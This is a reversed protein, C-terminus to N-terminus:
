PTHTCRKRLPKLPSCNEHSGTQKGLQRLGELSSNVRLPFFKTWSSCIREKSLLGRKLLSAFIYIVLTVEGSHTGICRLNNGMLSSGCIKGSEKYAGRGGM